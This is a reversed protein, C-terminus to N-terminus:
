PLTEAEQADRVREAEAINQEETMSADYLGVSQMYRVLPGVGVELVVGLLASIVSADVKRLSGQARPGYGLMERAETDDIVGGESFVAECVAINATIERM